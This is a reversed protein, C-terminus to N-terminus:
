DAEALLWQATAHDTVLVDLIEGRLAARIVRRKATGGAVGIVRPINKFQELTVGIMRESIELDVPSGGADMYRLGIDGVAGEEELLKLDLASLITGSRMVVSGPSLAGVGVLAIDARAALALTEAIQSDSRLAQAAEHTSVIGPAPVLRLKASLRQAARRTLETAHEQADLAGIGGLMQVITVDPWFRAPLSDVVALLSTGWTLGVTQRGSISRVLCEAGAPGLERAVLGPDDPDSVPVIVAEQLGYRRELDREVDSLGSAPPILTISIIEEARAKHLM